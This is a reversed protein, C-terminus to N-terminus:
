TAIDRRDFAILGTISFVIIVALFVLIGVKDLENHILIKVADFYHFFSIYKLDAYKEKLTAVINAVYMLVVVGASLFYVKGRDSFIASLFMSVSFTALGFLFTMLVLTSYNAPQVDINFIKAFPVAAYITAAVFALIVLAGALYRSLFLKRRSIPTSLLFEISGKEVENALAAGASSIALIILFLPWTISYLEASLFNELHAFSYDQLNFAKMMEPPMLKLMQDWQEQQSAFSPFMAIYMLLFALAVIIYIATVLRRDKITKTIIALMINYNTCPNIVRINVSLIEWDTGM